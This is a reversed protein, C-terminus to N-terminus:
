EAYVSTKALYWNKQLLQLSLLGSNRNGLVSYLEKKPRDWYILLDSKVTMFRDSTIERFCITSDKWVQIEILENQQLFFDTAPGLHLETGTVIRSSLEFSGHASKVTFYSDYDAYHQRIEKIVAKFTNRDSQFLSVLSSSDSSCGALVLFVILLHSKM